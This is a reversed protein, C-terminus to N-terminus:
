GRHGIHPVVAAVDEHVHRCRGNGAVLEHTRIGRVDAAVHELKRKLARHEGVGVPQAPVNEDRSVVLRLERALKPAGAEVVSELILAVPNRQALHPAVLVDSVFRLQVGDVPAGFRLKIDVILAPHHRHTHAVGPTIANGFVQPAGRHADIATRIAPPQRNLPTIGCSLKPVVTDSVTLREEAETELVIEPVVIEAEEDLSGSLDAAIDVGVAVLRVVGRTVMGVDVLETLRVLELLRHGVVVGHRVVVVQIERLEHFAARM